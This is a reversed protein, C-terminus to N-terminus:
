LLKFENKHSELIGERRMKSIEASLGSRDVLLYDALTQRDFPIAFHRRGAKKAEVTLYALLKERTTKQSTIEIKQHFQITKRALDRMLNFILRNHFACHNQCTHMIHSADILMVECPEAAIVSVPLVETNACAFAEGFVEGDKAVSLVSRKGYYDNQVTHAVGRLLVGIHRAAYGEAFITYKKDFHEIHAGLCQLMVALEEDNIGEFLPCKKLTQLYKKLFFEKQQIKLM